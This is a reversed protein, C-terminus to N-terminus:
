FIPKSRSLRIVHTSLVSEIPNGRVDSLKSYTIAHHPIAFFFPIVKIKVCFVYFHVLILMKVKPEIAVLLVGYDRFLIASIHVVFMFRKVGNLEQSCYAFRNAFQKNTHLM